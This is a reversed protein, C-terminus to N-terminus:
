ARCSQVKRYGPRRSRGPLDERLRRQVEDGLLDVDGGAFDGGIGCLALGPLLLEVFLAFREAEAHVPGILSAFDRGLQQGDGQGGCVNRGDGGGQHVLKASAPDDSRPRDDDFPEDRGHQDRGLTVDGPLQGM